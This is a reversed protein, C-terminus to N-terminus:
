SISLVKKLLDNQSLLGILLACLGVTLTFNGATLLYGQISCFQIPVSSKFINLVLGHIMYIELSHKGAWLFFGRLREKGDISIGVNQERKDGYGDANCAASNDHLKDVCADTGAPQLFDAQERASRSEAAFLPRPLSGPLTERDLGPGGGIIRSCEQFYAAYQLAARWRHLRVCFLLLGVTQCKM